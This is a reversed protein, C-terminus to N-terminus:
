FKTLSKIPSISSNFGIWNEMGLTFYLAPEEVQLIYDDFKLSSFVGLGIM